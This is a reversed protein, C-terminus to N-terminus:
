SLGYYKRYSLYSYLYTFGVAFLMSGGLIVSLIKEPFILTGILCVIGAFFFVRGGMRHTDNWVREDALAWMTKIGLTYSQKCKPLYNGIFTLLLAIAATVIKGVPFRLANNASFLVIELVASVLLVMVLRFAAYFGEIKKYSDGKPDVKPIVFFGPFLLVDISFLTWITSKPGYSVSGDSGWNTPLQDPLGPYMILLQIFVAILIFIAIYDTKKLKM